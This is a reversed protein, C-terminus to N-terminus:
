EALKIISKGCNGGEFLESWVRPIDEFRKRLDYITEGGEAKLKGEDIAKVLDKYAEASRDMFPELNFGLLTLQKMRFLLLSYNRISASTLDNYALHMSNIM